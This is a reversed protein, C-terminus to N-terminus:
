VSGNETSDATECEASLIEIEDRHVVVRKDHCREPKWRATATDQIEIEEGDSHITAAASLTYPGESVYNEITATEEPRLPYVLSLDIQGRVEARVDVPEELTNTLLLDNTSVGATARSSCGAFFSGLGALGGRIVTRRRM